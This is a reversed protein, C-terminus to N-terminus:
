AKKSKKAKKMKDQDGATSPASLSTPMAGKRGAASAVTFVPPFLISRLNKRVGEDYLNDIESMKTIVREVTRYELVEDDQESSRMRSQAQQQQQQPSRPQPPIYRLHSPHRRDRQEYRKPGIAVGELNVDQVEVLERRYIMEGIDEWKFSENTTVGTAILYLNYMFFIFIVLGALTAFVGLAGLGKDVQMQYIFIHYTRFVGLKEWRNSAVLYKYMPSHYM